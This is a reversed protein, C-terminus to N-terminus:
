TRNELTAPAIMRMAAGVPGAEKDFLNLHLGRMSARGGSAAFQDPATVPGLQICRVGGEELGLFRHGHGTFFYRFQTRGWAEPMQAAMVLPLQPLKVTHGHTAGILNVGWEMFWFLSPDLDVTIRDENQFAMYLAVAIATSTEPDHNGPLVRVVVRAHRQALIRVVDVCTHVTEILVKAHRTDVDLPHGSRPTVAAHDDAHTLDGLFLAVATHCPESMASVESALSVLRERAIALNYGEGTEAPWSYQGMHVDPIGVVALRDASVSLPAVIPPVPPLDNLADRIADLVTELPVGDSKTKIGQQVVRGDADVLASRGKISHNEPIKFPEGPEPRSKVSRSVVEGAGNRTEAVSTIAFGRPPNNPDLGRESARALRRSLTSHAIGLDAAAQAVNGGRTAVEEVLRKLADDSLPTPAAGVELGFRPALTDRTYRLTNRDIGLEKAAQNLNGSCQDLIALRHEIEARPPQRPAM